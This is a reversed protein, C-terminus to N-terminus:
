RSKGDFISYLHCFLGSVGLINCPSIPSTWCIVTSPDLLICHTLYQGASRASKRLAFIKGFKFLNSQLCGKSGCGKM